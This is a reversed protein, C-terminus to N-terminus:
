KKGQRLPLRRLRSEKDRKQSEAQAEIQLRQPVQFSTTEKGPKKGTDQDEKRGEEEGGSEKLTSNDARDEISDQPVAGRSERESIPTSARPTRPRQLGRDTKQEKKEAEQGDGPTDTNRDENGSDISRDKDSGERDDSDLNWTDAKRKAEAPSHISHCAKGEHKKKNGSTKFKRFCFECQFNKGQRVEKQHKNYAKNGYYVKKCPPCSMSKPPRPPKSPTAKKEGASNPSRGGTEEESATDSEDQPSPRKIAKSHPVSRRQPLGKSAAEGKVLVIGQVPKPEESPRGGPSAEGQGTPSVTRGTSLDRATPGRVKRTLRGTPRIPPSGPRVEKEEEPSEEKEEDYSAKRHKRGKGAGREPPGSNGQPGTESHKRGKGAPDRRGQTRLRPVNEKEGGCISGPEAGGVVGNGRDLALTEREERGEERPLNGPSRGRSPSKVKKPLEEQISHPPRARPDGSWPPLFAGSSSGRSAGSNWGQTVMRVRLQGPAAPETSPMEEPSHSHPDERQEKDPAEEPSGASLTRPFADKWRLRDQM